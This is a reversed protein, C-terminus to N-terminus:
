SSVNEVVIDAVLVIVDVTAIIISPVFYCDALKFCCISAVEEGDM